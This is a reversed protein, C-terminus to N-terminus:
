LRGSFSTTSASIIGHCKMLYSTLVFAPMDRIHPRARQLVDALDAHAASALVLDADRFRTADAHPGPIAVCRMGASKAATVGHPADEIAVTSCPPLGLRRLALVYVAPDPKPAAVEDGCAIVDFQDLYGTRSLLGLM